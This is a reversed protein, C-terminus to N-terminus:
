GGNAWPMQKLLEKIYTAQAEITTKLNPVLQNQYFNQFNTLKEVLDEITKNQQSKVRQMAGLQYNRSKLQPGAYRLCCAYVEEKTVADGYADLAREVDAQSWKIETAVQKILEQKNAM